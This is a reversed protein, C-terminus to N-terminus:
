PQESPPDDTMAVSAPDSLQDIWADRKTKFRRMEADSLKQNRPLKIKMPDVFKGHKWFQYHLHPGTSMGTSGVTGIVQGQKVKQGKKVRIKHM